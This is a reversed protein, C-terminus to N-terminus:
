HGRGPMGEREDRTPRLPLRALFEEIAQRYQPTMPDDNHRLGPQRIFRKDRSGAAQHLREGLEIPIVEDRDGHVQLLPGRYAAIKAASDLKTQMLWHVPLFRVKAAAVDPLSSFTNELILGRAGDAAALDVAVAAGLSEGMLVIDAESIGTRQALWKRAARADALVGREDPAGESRGYGRYDFVFISVGLERRLRDMRAARHSLNGANGHCFLVVERARAHPFFWGHLSIGDASAFRADQAGFAATDWCGDKAPHFVFTRDLTEGSAPPAPRNGALPSRCGAAGLSIAV